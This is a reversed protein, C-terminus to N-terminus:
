ATNAKAENCLMKIWLTQCLENDEKLSFTKKIRHKAL